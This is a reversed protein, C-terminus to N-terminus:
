LLVWGICNLLETTTETTGVDLAIYLGPDFGFTIAGINGTVMM